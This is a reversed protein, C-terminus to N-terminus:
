VVYTFQFVEVVLRIYCNTIDNADKNDITVILDHDTNNMDCFIDMGTEYYLGDIDVVELVFNESINKTINEAIRFDFVSSETQVKVSSLKPCYTLGIQGINPFRLSIVDSITGGPISIATNFDVILVNQSKSLIPQMATHTLVIM